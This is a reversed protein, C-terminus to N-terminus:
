MLKQLGNAQVSSDKFLHSVLTTKSIQNGAALWDTMCSVNPTSTFCQECFILRVSLYTSRYM